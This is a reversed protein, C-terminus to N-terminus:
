ASERRQIEAADRWLEDSLRIIDIVTWIALGAAVLEGIGLAGTTAELTAALAGRLAFRIAVAKWFYRWAVAATATAFAIGLARALDQLQQDRRFIPALDVPRFRGSGRQKNMEQVILRLLAALTALELVDRTDLCIQYLILGPAALSARFTARFTTGLQAVVQDRPQFLTGGVYPLQYFPYVAQLIGVKEIGASRGSPSNPKIEYFARELPTHVLLDPVRMLGAGLLRTYYDLQQAQTFQPNHSALFYLYAAPNYHDVFVQGPLVGFQACFDAYILDEALGGFISANSASVGPIESPALCGQM